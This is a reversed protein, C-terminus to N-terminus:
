TRFFDDFFISTSAVCVEHSDEFVLLGWFIFSPCKQEWGKICSSEHYDELKGTKWHLFMPSKQESSKRSRLSDVIRDESSFFFTAWRYGFSTKDWSFMSLTVFNGLWKRYIGYSPEGGLFFQRGAAQLQKRWVQFSQFCIFVSSFLQFYHPKHITLIKPDFELGRPNPPNPPNFWAFFFFSRFGM